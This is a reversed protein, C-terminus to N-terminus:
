FKIITFKTGQKQTLYANYKGTLLGNTTKVVNKGIVTDMLTTVEEASITPSVSDISISSTKGNDCLFVLTLIYDM